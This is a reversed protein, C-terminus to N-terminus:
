VLTRRDAEDYDLPKAQAQRRFARMRRVQSYRRLAHRGGFVTGGGVLLVVVFFPIALIPAGWAFAAGIALGLLAVLGLIM